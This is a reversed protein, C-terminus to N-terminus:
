KKYSSIQVKSGPKISLLGTTIITDGIALGKLIEVKASDRVGTTITVFDAVGQRYVVVKKDRAEPIIAQTPIMVASENEGLKFQVNAFGGSAINDDLKTVIAQVKLTRTEQTIGPETAAIQAAYRADSTETTFYITNGKKVENAYKEPISFELKLKNVQQITTIVTAPTIYAGISINKFGIKGSFPARIVTKAIEAKMIQIDAVITSENLVSLDFDQQSIGGIKLLQDQRDRTKRAIQLQVNLKNLQAQLDGDFLRALVTGKNVFSGERLSLQVVRGSVEPHIETEEYPKLTGAIQLSANLALPKIVYAEAKLPAGSDKRPQKIEKPENSCSSFMILSFAVLFNLYKLNM